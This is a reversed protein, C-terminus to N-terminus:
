DNNIKNLTNKCFWWMKGEYDMTSWNEPYKDELGTLHGDRFRECLMWSKWFIDEDREQSM